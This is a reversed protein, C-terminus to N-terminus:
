AHERTGRSPGGGRVIKAGAVEGQLSKLANASGTAPLDAATLRAITFPTKAKSMPDGAASVVMTDNQLPSNRSGACAIANRYVDPLIRSSRRVSLVHKTGDCCGRM